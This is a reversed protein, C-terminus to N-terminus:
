GTSTLRHNEILLDLKTSFIAYPFAQRSTNSIRDVLAVISANSFLNCILLASTVTYRLSRSMCVYVGPGPPFGVGYLMLWVLCAHPRSSPSRRRKHDTVEGSPAPRSAYSRSTWLQTPTHCSLRYQAVVEYGCGAVTQSGIRITTPSTASSSCRVDWREHLVRCGRGLERVSQFERWKGHAQNRGDAVTTLLLTKQIARPVALPLRSAIPRKASTIVRGSLCCCLRMATLRRTNRRHHVSEIITASFFASLLRARPANAAEQNRSQHGDGVGATSDDQHHAASGSDRLNSYPSSIHGSSSAEMRRDLASNTPADDKPMNSPLLGREHFREADGAVCALLIIKLVHTTLRILRCLLTQMGAARCRSEPLDKKDRRLM